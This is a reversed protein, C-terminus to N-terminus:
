KQGKVKKLIINQGRFNRLIVSPRFTKNCKCNPGEPLCARNACRSEVIKPRRGLAHGGKDAAVTAGAGGHGGGCCWWRGCWLWRPRLLDACDAATFSALASLPFSSSSFFSLFIFLFFNFLIIFCDPRGSGVKTRGPNTGHGVWGAALCCAWCVWAWAASSFSFSSFLGTWCCAWSLCDLLLM